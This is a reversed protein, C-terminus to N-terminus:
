GNLWGSGVAYGCVFGMTLGFVYAVYPTHLLAILGASMAPRGERSGVPRSRHAGRGGCLGRGGQGV